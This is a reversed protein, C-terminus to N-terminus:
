EIEDLEINNIKIEDKCAHDIEITKEAFQGNEAGDVDLFHINAKGPTCEECHELVSVYFEFKGDKDTIGFNNGEKVTVKIGPIPLNTTKSTVTGTLKLDCYMDPGPGYCAQFIFAVATISFGNFVRRLFKRSTLEVKKM